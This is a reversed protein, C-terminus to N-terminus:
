IIIRSITNQVRLNRTNGEAFLINIDIRQKPLYDNAIEPWEIVSIARTLAEDIGINELEKKDKLRYLDFHWVECVDTDYVNVINFTPSTVQVNSLYKMLLTTFTTKGSGLDGSLTIVDGMRLQKALANCINDLAKLDIATLTSVKM